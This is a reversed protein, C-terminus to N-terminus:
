GSGQNRLFPSMKLHNGTDIIRFEQNLWTTKSYIRDRTIGSADDTISIRELLGNFLSSKRCQASWSYCSGQANIIEKIREATRGPSQRAHCHTKGRGDAQFKGYVQRAPRDSRMVVLRTKASRIGKRAKWLRAKPFPKIPLFAGSRFIALAGQLLVKYGEKLRKTVTEM